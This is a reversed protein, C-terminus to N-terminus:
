SSALGSGMRILGSGMRVHTRFLPLVRISRDGSQKLTSVGKQEVNSAFGQCVPEPADNLFASGIAAM